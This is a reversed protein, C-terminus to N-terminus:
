SIKFRSVVNHLQANTDSLQHTSNFTEVGNQHISNIMDQIATMNRNIEETVASQQEASSAIQATLDNIETVSESIGDLSGMVRSTNQSTQQCSNKTTEMANVVAITGKRLKTLMENIDSTSQQTRAALTRVEDAVVAFGRGQEGARAAEIAANLALLNTQEAIEGIVTLVSSIQETDRNMAMVSESMKTVEDVLATVSHVAELVVTKSEETESNTKQTLKAASTASQAVSGAASSMETIATVVQETEKSHAALLAQSSDSQETVQTIEKRIQQSSQAVDIMMSQLKEIFLNIGIAIKGLDDQSNVHLRRTLDGDGQSLDTVLDRLSTIPKFTFNIFIISLPVIILAAALLAITIANNLQDTNTQIYNKDIYGTLHWQQGRIDFENPLAILDGDEKNSFLLNNNSDALELYTGEVASTALLEQISSLDIFFIDGSNDNRPILISILPKDGDFFVDSVIVQGKASALQDVYPQTKGEALEGNPTFALNSIIKIVNYFGTKEQTNKITAISFNLNEALIIKNKIDEVLKDKIMNIQSNINKTDNNYIYNSIYHNVSFYSTVITISIITVFVMYIKVKFSVKNM